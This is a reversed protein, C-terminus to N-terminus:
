YSFFTRCNVLTMFSLPLLNNQVEHLLTNPCLRFSSRAEIWAGDSVRIKVGILLLYPRNM